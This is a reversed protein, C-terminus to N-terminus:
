TSISVSGGTFGGAEEEVETACSAGGGYAGDLEWGSGADAEFEVGTEAGAAPVFGGDVVAVVGATTGSGWFGFALRRVAPKKTRPVARTRGRRKEM